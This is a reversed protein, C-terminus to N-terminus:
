TSIEGECRDHLDGQRDVPGGCHGCPWREDSIKGCACKFVTGEGEFEHTAGHVDCRKKGERCEKCLHVGVGDPGTAGCLLEEVVDDGNDFTCLVKGCSM